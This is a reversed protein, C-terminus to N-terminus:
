RGLTGLPDIGAAARAAALEKELDNRVRRLGAAKSAAEQAKRQLEKVRLVDRELNAIEELKEHPYQYAM